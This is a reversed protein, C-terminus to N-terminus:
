SLINFRTYIDTTPHAERWQKWTTKEYPLTRLPIKTGAEPSIHEGTDQFYFGEDVKLFMRGPAGAEGAHLGGYQVELADGTRRDTYVRIVDAQDSYTVTVPYDAFMDNVVLNRTGRFAALRYARFKGGVSVGIVPTEDPLHVDSIQQISPMRIPTTIFPSMALAGNGGEPEKEPSPMLRWMFVGAAIGFLVIATAIGPRRRGVPDRKPESNAANPRSM